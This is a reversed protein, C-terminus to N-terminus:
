LTKVFDLVKEAFKPWSREAKELRINKSFENKMDRAFYDNIANKILDPEPADVILGTEEHHVTEKLGGVDTAIIPVEFHHSIATIGSQTAGKYPLICVDAISFYNTVEDDPIYDNFLHVRDALENQDIIQQYKDFSGYVEGAVILHYSDDLGSMAELLLDLGKYERIFGFFLLYKKDVDLGLKMLTESRDELEGFQDYVPHDILLYKADPKLSLLDDRVAKSLVVFGDNYKLFHKNAPKDFFRKEHPIMNHVISVRKASKVKKHVSGIAPGFFTMWYQSILVDPEFRNIEQATRAFSLPNTSELVREATIPDANDGSEVFQTKGPFLFAPYQRKFTYAKVENQAELERYLKASFQAIGGRYPYFASLLAIKMLAFIPM